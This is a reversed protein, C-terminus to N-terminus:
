QGQGEVTMWGDNRQSGALLRTQPYSDDQDERDHGGGSHIQLFTAGSLRPKGPRCGRSALTLGDPRRGQAGRRRGGPWAQSQTVRTGACTRVPLDTGAGTKGEERGGEGWGTRDLVPICDADGSFPSPPAGQWGGPSQQEAWATGRM